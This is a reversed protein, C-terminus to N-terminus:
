RGLVNWRDQYTHRLGLRLFDDEDMLYVDDTGYFTVLGDCVEAGIWLAELLEKDRPSVKGSKKFELIMENWDAPDGGYFSVFKDHVYESLKNFSRDFADTWWGGPYVIEDGGTWGAYTAVHVGEPTDYYDVITDFADYKRLSLIEDIDVGDDYIEMGKLEGKQRGLAVIKQDEAAQRIEPTAEDEDNAISDMLDNWEDVLFLARDETPNVFQPFVDGMFDSVKMWVDLDCEMTQRDKRMDIGRIIDGAGGIGFVQRSGREIEVDTDPDYVAVVRKDFAEWAKVVAENTPPCFSRSKTETVRDEIKRMTKGDM